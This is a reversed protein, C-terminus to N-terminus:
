EGKSIDEEFDQAFARGFGRALIMISSYLDDHSNVILRKRGLASGAKLAEGFSHLITDTFM